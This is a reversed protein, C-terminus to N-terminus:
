FFLIYLSFIVSFWVLRYRSCWMFTNHCFLLCLFCPWHEICIPELSFNPLLLVLLTKVVNLNSPPLLCDPIPNLNKVDVAIASLFPSLVGKFFSVVVTPYSWFLVFFVFVFGWFRFTPFLYLIFSLSLYLFLLLTFFLNLSDIGSTPAVNM